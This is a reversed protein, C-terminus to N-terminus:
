MGYHRIAYGDGRVLQSISYVLAFGMDMGTGGLSVGKAAKGRPRDGIGARIVLHSLNMVKNKGQRDHKAILPVITRRTGDSNVSTVLTSIEEVDTLLERLLDIAEAREADTVKM